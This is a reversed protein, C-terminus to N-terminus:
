RTPTVPAGPNQADTHVGPNSPLRWLLIGALAAFFFLLGLLATTLIKYREHAWGWLDTVFKREKLLGISIAALTKADLQSFQAEATAARLTQPEVIQHTIHVVRMVASASVTAAIPLIIIMAWLIKRM